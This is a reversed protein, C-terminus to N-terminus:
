LMAVSLTFLRSDALVDASVVTCTTGIIPVVVVTLAEALGALTPALTVKVAETAGAPPVPMGVPVTVKLSPDM